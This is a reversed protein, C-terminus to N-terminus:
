GAALLTATAVTQASCGLDPLSATGGGQGTGPLPLRGNPLVSPSVAEQEVSDAELTASTRTTGVAVTFEGTELSSMGAASLVTVTTSRTTIVAVATGDPEVVTFGGTSADAVTGSALGLKPAIATGGAKVPLVPPIPLQKLKGIVNGMGVGISQAVTTGNSQTTEVVVQAGDHVDDLSGSVERSVKTSASTAVTVSQGDSTKVVLNPGVVEDLTGLTEDLGSCGKVATLGALVTRPGGRTAPRSGPGGFGALLGYSGAAVVLLAAAAAGLYARRSLRRNGTPHADRQYSGVHSDSRGSSSDEPLYSAPAPTAAVLRRAGRAVIAWREADRRCAPCAVLHVKAKDSLLTGTAEALLEEIDLHAPEAKM